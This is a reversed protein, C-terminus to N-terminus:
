AALLRTPVSRGRKAAATSIAPNPGRTPRPLAARLEEPAPTWNGRRWRELLLDSLVPTPEDGAACAALRRERIGASDDELDRLAVVVQLAISCRTSCGAAGAVAGAEGLGRAIRWPHPDSYTVLAGCV